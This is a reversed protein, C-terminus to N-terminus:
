NASLPKNGSGQGVETDTVASSPKEESKKSWLLSQLAFSFLCFIIAFIVISAVKCSLNIETSYETVDNLLEDIGHNIIFYQLAFFACAVVSLTLYYTINKKLNTESTLNRWWIKMFNPNDNKNCNDYDIQERSNKYAFIGNTVVCGIIPFFILAIVGYVSWKTINLYYDRSQADLTVKFFDLISDLILPAVGSVGARIPFSIIGVMAFHLLCIFIAENQNAKKLKACAKKLKSNEAELGKIKAESEEQAASPGITELEIEQESGVAASNM